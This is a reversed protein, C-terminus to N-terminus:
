IVEPSRDPDLPNVRVALSYFYPYSAELDQMYSLWEPCLRRYVRNIDIALHAYDGDPLATVDRRYALEDSLHFIAQLLATVSEHELLAPNQLLGILFSRKELLFGRLEKLRDTEVSMLCSYERLYRQADAFDDDSWQSTLALRRGLSVRGPDFSSIIKLLPLGVESFFIRIIMNLRELRDRKERVAILRNIFFTILIVSIPLFALQLTVLKVTFEADRFIVYNIGFFLCSVLLLLFIFVNQWTAFVQRLKPARAEEPLRDSTSALEPAPSDVTRDM